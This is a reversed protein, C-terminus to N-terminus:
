RSLWQAIRRFWREHWRAELVELRAHAKELERQLSDLYYKMDELYTQAQDQLDAHARTLDGRVTEVHSAVEARVQDLTTPAGHVPALVTPHPHNM